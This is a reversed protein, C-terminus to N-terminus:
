TSKGITEHLKNTEDGEYIKTKTKKKQKEKNKILVKLDQHRKRM